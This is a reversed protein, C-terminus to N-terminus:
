ALALIDERAAVIKRSAESPAGYRTVQIQGIMIPDDAEAVFGGAERVIKAALSVAAIVSPEEVGRPVLFDRGNLEFNLRLGLPLSFTGIANEIMQNAIDPQLSSPRQLLALEENTLRLMKGIQNLREAMPLKYFGALRSTVVESMGDGGDLPATGGLFHR